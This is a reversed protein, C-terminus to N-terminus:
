YSTLQRNLTPTSRRSITSSQKLRGGVFLSTPIVPFIQGVWISPVIRYHGVSGLNEQTGPLDHYSETMAWAPKMTKYELPNALALASISLAIIGARFSM